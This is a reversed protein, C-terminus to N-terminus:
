QKKFDITYVTNTLQHLINRTNRRENPQYVYQDIVLVRSKDQQITSFSVFPGGMFDNAVDWFGRQEIWNTGNIKITRLTPYMHDSTKMYSGELAGPIMAAFAERLELSYKQSFKDGSNFPYTYIFMGQSSHPTEYSIWLFNDKVDRVKYGKPIYMTFDFQSKITDVIAKDSFKIIREAMRSQEARDFLTIVSEKHKELYKTLTSDNPATIYVMMQPDAHKNYEVKVSASDYQAGYNMTVLNRHRLLISKLNTPVSTVIDYQPESKNLMPVEESMIERFKAFADGTQVTDNAIITVEYPNGMSSALHTKSGDSKCSFIALLTIIIISLNRM